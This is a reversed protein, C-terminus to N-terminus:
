DMGLLGTGEADRWFECLVWVLVLDTDLDGVGAGADRRFRQSLDELRVERGFLRSDSQPQGECSFQDFVVSTLDHDAALDTYPRSEHNNKRALRDGFWM